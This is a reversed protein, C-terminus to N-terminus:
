RRRRRRGWWVLAGLVLVADVPVTVKTPRKVVIAKPVVDGGASAAFFVDEIGRRPASDDEFVTMYRGAHAGAQVVRASWPQGALTAAYRQDAVFFVRLLRPAADSAVQPERYPYVPRETEFTMTVLGNTMDYAAAQPATTSIVFATLKWKARVYIDLWATLAPTAAFGHAALWAMVEGADEGEITTADYGAVTAQALVRVGDIVEKELATCYGLLSGLRIDYGRTDIEVRPQIARELEWLVRPSAEALTPVAPTPVLFGFTRASAHFAARRTFTEIKTAPDWTILATEEAIRVEAGPPPVAACADAERVDAMLVLALVAISRMRQWVRWGGDTM